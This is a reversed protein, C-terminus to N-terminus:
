KNNKSRKRVKSRNKFIDIGEIAVNTQNLVVNIEDGSLEESEISKYNIKRMKNLPMERRIKFKAPIQRPDLDPNSIMTNNVIDSIVDIEDMSKGEETLTIHCIPMVGCKVEDYYPVIVANEVYKNKELEPEILYPRVNYGDQRIFGRDGRGRSYFIGDRDMFGRDDTRLYMKDDNPMKQIIVKGPPAFIGDTLQGGSIVIEGELKDMNDELKLPILKDKIDPDVISITTGPLPIGISSDRKYDDKAYAAGGATESLGYGQELHAMCKHEKLFKNFEREDEPKMASGGYFVKTIFSLDMDRLGSNKVMAMLFAPTSMIVNPKLRLILYEFNNLPFEPAHINVGRSFYTQLGNNIRGFAAFGPLFHLVTEGENPGLGGMDCQYFSSVIAKNTLTVPKPIAGSTGSTHGIYAILNPDNIIEFHSNECERALDDYNYINLPSSKIMEKLYVNSEDFSKLTTIIRKLEDITVNNSVLKKGQELRKYNLIDKAYEFLGNDDMSSTIDLLILDEIGLEKLENEIPKIMSAYAQNITIIHKIDYGHEIAKEKEAKIMNFLKHSSAIADLGPMPDAYNISAGLQNAGLMIYDDEPMNPVLSLIIDKKKVGLQDLVRSANDAKYFLEEYTLIKNFYVSSPMSMRSINRNKLVEVLNKNLIVEKYERGEYYKMWPKDIHPYGTKKSEM